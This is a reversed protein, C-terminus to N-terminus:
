AAIADVRTRLHFVFTGAADVYTQGTEIADNWQKSTPASSGTLGRLVTTTLTPSGERLAVAAFGGCVTTAHLVGTGDRWVTSPSGAANDAPLIEDVWAQAVSVHDPWAASASTAMGFIPLAIAPPFAM